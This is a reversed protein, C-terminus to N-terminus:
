HIQYVYDGNVGIVLNRHERLKKLQDLLTNEPIQRISRQIAKGVAEPGDFDDNKLDQKIARFLYRDCLNLDPSYPSQHVVSIDRQALYDQTLLSSHPRANDMQFLSDKLAIKHNKLNKFRKFTNKIYEIMFNADITIGKSMMSVSFRKPKCTFAVLVM